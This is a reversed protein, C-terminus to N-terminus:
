GGAIFVLVMQRKIHRIYRIKYHIKLTKRPETSRKGSVVGAHSARLKASRTVSASHKARSQM